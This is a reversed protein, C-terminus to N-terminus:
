DYRRKVGNTLRRGPRMTTVIAGARGRGDGTPVVDGHWGAVPPQREGASVAEAPLGPPVHAHYCSARPDRAVTRAMGGAAWKRTSSLSSPTTM